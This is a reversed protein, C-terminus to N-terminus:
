SGLFPLAAKAEGGGFAWGSAQLYWLTRAIRMESYARTSLDKSTRWLSLLYIILYVIIFSVQPPYLHLACM